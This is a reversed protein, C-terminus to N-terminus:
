LLIPYLNGKDWVLRELQFAYGNDALWQRLMETKTMPQLLLLTNRKTWPTASLISVITDGGMGAIVITDTEEKAVGSLGDCLRFDIGRIGYETATRRAHELPERGVDSAIAQQIKGRQLLYVPLYGHDTGVDTLRAGQPVLDALLKLRPQLQLERM